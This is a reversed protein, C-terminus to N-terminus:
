PEPFNPNNTLSSLIHGVKAQFDAENLTDFAIVLKPQM